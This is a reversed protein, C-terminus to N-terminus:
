RGAYSPEPREHVEKIKIVKGKYHTMIEEFTENVTKTIYRDGFKLIIQNM